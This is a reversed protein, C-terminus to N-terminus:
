VANRHRHNIITKIHRIYSFLCIERETLPQGIRWIAVEEQQPLAIMEEVASLHIVLFLHIRTTRDLEIELTCSKKNERYELKVKSLVKTTKNQQKVGRM